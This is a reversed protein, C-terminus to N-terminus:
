TRLSSFLTNPFHIRLLLAVFPKLHRFFLHTRTHPFIHIHTLHIHAQLSPIPTLSPLPTTAKHTGSATSPRLKLRLTKILRRFDPRVRDGRKLREEEEQVWVRLQRQVYIRRLRTSGHM